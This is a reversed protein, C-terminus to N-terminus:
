KTLLAANTDFPYSRGQINALFITAIEFSDVFEMGRFINETIHRIAMTIHRKEDERGDSPM